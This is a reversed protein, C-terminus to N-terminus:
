YQLIYKLLRITKDRRRITHRISGGINCLDTYSVFICAATLVGLLPKAVGFM